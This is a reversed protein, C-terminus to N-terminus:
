IKVKNDDSDNDIPWISSETMWSEVGSSKIYYNFGSENESISDVIGDVGSDCSVICGLDFKPLGNDIIENSTNIKFLIESCAFWWCNGNTLSVYYSLPHGRQQKIDTIYGICGSKIMIYEGINYKREM